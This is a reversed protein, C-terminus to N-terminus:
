FDSLPLIDTGGFSYARKETFVGFMKDVHIRGSNNFLPM